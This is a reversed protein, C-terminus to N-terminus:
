IREQLLHRDIKRKYKEEEIDRYYKEWIKVYRAVKRINIKEALTDHCYDYGRIVQANGITVLWLCVFFLIKKTGM